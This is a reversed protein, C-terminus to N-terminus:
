FNFFANLVSSRTNFTENSQKLGEFKLDTITEAVGGGGGRGAKSTRPNFTLQSGWCAESWFQRTRWLSCTSSLVKQVKPSIDRSIVIYITCFLFQHHKWDYPVVTVSKLKCCRSSIVCVGFGGVGYSIGKANDIAAITCKQTGIRHYM